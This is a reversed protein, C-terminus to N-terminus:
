HQDEQIVDAFIRDAAEKLEPYEEVWALAEAYIELAQEEQGNVSYSVIFNRYLRLVRESQIKLERAKDVAFRFHAQSKEDRGLEHLWPGLSFLNNLVVPHDPVVRQHYVELSAEFLEVAQSLRETAAYVRGLVERARCSHSSDFRLKEFQTLAALAHTEAKDLQKLEFYCEALTLQQKYPRTGETGYVEFELEVLPELISVAEQIKGQNRLCDALKANTQMRYPHTEEFVSEQTGLIRRFEREAELLKDQEQLTTALHTRYRLTMENEAGIAREADVILRRLLEEARVHELKNRYVIALNNMTSLYTTNEKGLHREIGQLSEEYLSKAEEIRDQHIRLNGLHNMAVYTDPHDEGHAKLSGTYALEMLPAAEKLRGFNFYAAGLVGAFKGQVSPEDELEDLSQRGTDLLQGVTTNWGSSHQQDALRFLRIVYEGVKEATRAKENANQAEERVRENAKELEDILDVKAHMEVQVENRADTVQWLLYSVCGLSVLLVTGTVSMLPHRQAWKRARNFIGPPQAKIPESRLFHDLDDRLEKMSAYRHERKKELAKLCIVALEKPIGARITRPDQAEQQTVAQLVQQISDGDFPRQLTLVEYLTVGLSFVDTRHDIKSSVGRTQEPSMYHPTGMRDGTMSLNAAGELAALGFDSVKPQGDPTILINSPKIDRHVVGAQHAFCVADSIRHFLRAIDQYHDKSIETQKRWRDMYDALTKGDAVLEQAIYPQEGGQGIAYVQVVGEHSVLSGAQAERQFRAFARPNPAYQLPLLKLAVQRGLSIQRAQWVEGMAGRGLFRQLEFDDIIQGPRCPLPLLGDVPQDVRGQVAEYDELIEKLKASSELGFRRAYEEPDPRGGEYLEQVYELCVKLTEGADQSRQNM